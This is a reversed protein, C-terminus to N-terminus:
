LEENTNRQKEYNNLTNKREKDDNKITNKEIEYNKMTKDRNKMM